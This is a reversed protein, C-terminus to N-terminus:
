SQRPQDSGRGSSATGKGGPGTPAAGKPGADRPRGGRSGRGKTAKSKAVKPKAPARPIVLERVVRIITTGTFGEITPAELVEGPGGGLSRIASAADELEQHATQGKMALLVGGSRLLPLTWGALRDMPAVARATVADAVLTGQMDEARGRVVEVSTLGLQEVVEILWAVRREMPDLLVIHLDPRLAALVVGPLGAGSGVDIVTGSAPLFPVVSASNILHREWLRVVERPGILGRLVGQDALLAAFRAVTAHAEGFFTVVRPDDGALPSDGDASM